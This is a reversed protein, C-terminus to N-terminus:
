ICHIQRSKLGSKIFAPLGMVTGEDGSASAVPRKEVVEVQGDRGPLHDADHPGIARALGRLAPDEGAVERRPRAGDRQCRRVGEHAPQGLLALADGPLRDGAVDDVAGTSGGGGALHALRRLDEGGRSAM